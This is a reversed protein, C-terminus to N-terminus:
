ETKHEWFRDEKEQAEPKAAEPADDEDEEANHLGIGVQAGEIRPNLYKDFCANAFSAQVFGVLAFGIVGYIVLLVLISFPLPVLLLIALPVAVTGLLIVFAIPLRAISIIISNRIIDKLKMKYTVMMPFMLENAMWWLALLVVMLAQPINFFWSDQAMQGYTVYAVFVVFFSFGNIIGIPLSQKWNTKIAEKYDQWVFSHEDRAWNRLVYMMGPRGVSALAVFPVMILLSLLLNGNLGQRAYLNYTNLQEVYRTRLDTLYAEDQAKVENQRNLEIAALVESEQARLEEMTVPRQTKEGGEIVTDEVLVEKGAELDAIRARIDSLKAENEALYKSANTLADLEASLATYGAYADAMPQPTGGLKVADAPELYVLATSSAIYLWILLPLMFLFHLLNVGIMSSFRVRLTTFFLQKRTTPMQEVTYDGQGAKGYFYNNMLGSM